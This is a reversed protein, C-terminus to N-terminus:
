CHCFDHSIKLPILQLIIAMCSILSDGVGIGGTKRITGVGDMNFTIIGYTDRAQAYTLLHLM